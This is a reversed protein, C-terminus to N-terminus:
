SRVGSAVRLVGQVCADLMPGLDDLEILTRTVFDTWVERDTAHLVEGDVIVERRLLADATRLDVVDVPIGFRDSLTLHLEGLQRHSLRVDDTRLVALDLDSQAHATGRARSGFRVVLGLGADALEQVFPLKPKQSLMLPLTAHRAPTRRSRAWASLYGALDCDSM